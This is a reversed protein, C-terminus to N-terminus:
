LKFAREDKVLQSYEKSNMAVRECARKDLSPHAKQVDAVISEFTKRVATRVMFSKAVPTARTSKKLLAKARSTDVSRAGCCTELCEM